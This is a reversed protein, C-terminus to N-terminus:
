PLMSNREDVCAQMMSRWNEMDAMGSYVAAFSLSGDLALAKQAAAKARPFADTPRMTGYPTFGLMAYCDAIGAYALPYTPDQEFGLRHPNWRM